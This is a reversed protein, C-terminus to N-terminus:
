TRPSGHASNLLRDGLPTLGHYVAKGARTSVILGVRRLTKTHGSVTAASIGLERALEGTSREAFTLKLIDARTHGILDALPDGVPEEVLPLPTLAPYLVLVCGDPEPALLVRGTWLPSPMLRLGAGCPYLDMDASAEIQMVTGNWSICPHLTSLAAQVGLEAILRSRLALESRFATLIRPWADATLHQYALRLALDLEHSAERDREALSRLWPTPPRTGRVRQLEATVLPAPAARVRELGEALDTTVPDLFVPGTASPPVLELLPRAASPLQAAASRRWNRFVPDQRQLMAVAM